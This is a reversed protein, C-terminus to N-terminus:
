AEAYKLAAMVLQNQRTDSMESHSLRDIPVILKMEELRDILGTGIACMLQHVTENRRMKNEQERYLQRTGSELLRDWNERTSNQFQSLVEYYVHSDIMIAYPPFDFRPLASSVTALWAYLITSGSSANKPAQGAGLVKFVSTEGSTVVHWRGRSLKEFLANALHRQLYERRQRETLEIM